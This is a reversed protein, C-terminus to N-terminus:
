GMLSRAKEIDELIDAKWRIRPFLRMVEEFAEIAEKPRNLKMHLRGINHLAKPALEHGIYATFVERYMRFAEEYRGNKAMIGAMRFQNGVELIVGPYAEQLEDYRGLPDSSERIAVEIVRNYELIAERNLAKKKYTRALGLHAELGRPDIKVAKEFLRKAKDFQALEFYENATKVMRHYPSFAERKLRTLKGTRGLGVIVGLGWAGIGAIIGQGRVIEMPEFLPQYFLQIFWIVTIFFSSLPIFLRIKEKPYAAIYVGMLAGVSCSGGISPIESHPSLIWYILSGFIGGGFYILIPFYHGWRRELLPGVIWLFFLNAVISFISLHIFTSTLLALPDGGKPIFGVRTFLFEERKKLLRERCEKYEEYLASWITHDETGTPILKGEHIKERVVRKFEAEAERTGIHRTGSMLDKFGIYRKEIRFMRTEIGDIEKELRIIEKRQHSTVITTLIFLFLNFFLLIRTSIPRRL